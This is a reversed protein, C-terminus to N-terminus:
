AGLVLRNFLVVLAGGAISAAIWAINVFRARPHAEDFTDIEGVPEVIRRVVIGPVVGVAITTLLLLVVDRTDDLLLFGVPVILVLFIAQRALGPLSWFRDALPHRRRTLM